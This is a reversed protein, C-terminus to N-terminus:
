LEEDWALWTPRPQITPRRPGVVQRTTLGYDKRLRDAEAESACLLARHDLDQGLWVLSSAVKDGRRGVCRIIELLVLGSPHSDPVAM